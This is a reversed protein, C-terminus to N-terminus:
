LFSLLNASRSLWLTPRLHWLLDASRSLSLTPQTRSLLAASRSLLSWSILTQNIHCSFLLALPPFSSLSPILHTLPTHLHQQILHTLIKELKQVSFDVSYYGPLIRFSVLSIPSVFCSSKTSRETRHVFYINNDNITEDSFRFYFTQSNQKM